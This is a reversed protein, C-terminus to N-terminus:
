LSPEIYGRNARLAAPEAAKCAVNRICTDSQYFNKRIGGINKYLIVEQLAASGAASWASRTPM